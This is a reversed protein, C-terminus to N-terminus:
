SALPQSTAAAKPRRRVTVTAQSRRVKVACLAAIAACGLATLDVGAMIWDGQAISV